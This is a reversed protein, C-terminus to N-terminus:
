KSFIGLIVFCVVMVAGIIAMGIETRSRAQWTHGCSRCTCITETRYKRRNKLTGGPELWSRLVLHSVQNQDIEEKHQQVDVDRSHCNPCRAM